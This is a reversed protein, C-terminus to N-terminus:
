IKLGDHNGRAGSPASSKTKKLHTPSVGFAKGAQTCFCPFRRTMRCLGKTSSQASKELEEFAKPNIRKWHERALKRTCSFRCRVIL